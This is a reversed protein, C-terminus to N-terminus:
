RLRAYRNSYAFGPGPRPQFRGFQASDETPLPDGEGFRAQVPQFGYLRHVGVQLEHHPDRFCRVYRRFPQQESFAAGPRVLLIPGAMRARTISVMAKM